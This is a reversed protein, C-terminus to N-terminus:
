KKIPHKKRYRKATGTFGDDRENLYEYKKKEKISSVINVVIVILFLITAISM